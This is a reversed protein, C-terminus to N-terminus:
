RTYTKNRPSDKDFELVELVSKKNMKRAFDTATFGKDEVIEKDAGHSLLVKAIEARGYSAACM